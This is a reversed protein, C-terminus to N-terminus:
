TWTLISYSLVQWFRACIEIRPEFTRHTSFYAVLFSEPIISSLGWTRTGIFISKWNVSGPTVKIRPYLWVKHWTKLPSRPWRYVFFTFSRTRSCLLQIKVWNKSKTTQNVSPKCIIRKLLLNRELNKPWSLGLNLKNLKIHLIFSFYYIDFTNMALNCSTSVRIKIRVQGGHIGLWYLRHSRKEGNWVGEQTHFQM